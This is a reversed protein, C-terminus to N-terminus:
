KIIMSINNSFPENCLFNSQIQIELTNITSYTFIDRLKNFPKEYTGDRTNGPDLFNEDLYVVQTPSLARLLQFFIFFLPALSFMPKAM